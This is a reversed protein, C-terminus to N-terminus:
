AADLAACLLQHECFIQAHKTQELVKNLKEELAALQALEGGRPRWSFAKFASRLLGIFGVCKSFGEWPVIPPALMAVDLLLPHLGFIPEDINM